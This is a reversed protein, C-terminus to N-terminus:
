RHENEEAKHLLSEGNTVVDSRNLLNSSDINHGIIEAAKRCLTRLEINEEQLRINEKKLEKLM